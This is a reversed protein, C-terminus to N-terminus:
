RQGAALPASAHRYRLGLVSAKGLDGRGGLVLLVVDHRADYVMARNQGTQRPLDDGADFPSAEFPIAVKRWSNDSPSYAWTDEPGGYSLMVDDQPLYVSERACV